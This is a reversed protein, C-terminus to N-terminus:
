SRPNLRGFERGVEENTFRMRLLKQAPILRLSFGGLVSIDQVAQILVPPVETPPRGGFPLMIVRGVFEVVLGIAFGGLLSSFGAVTLADLGTAPSVSDPDFVLDIAFTIPLFLAITALGASALFVIWNRKEESDDRQKCRACVPINLTIPGGAAGKKKRRKGSADPQGVALPHALDSPAGCSACREPFRISSLDDPIPLDVTVSM